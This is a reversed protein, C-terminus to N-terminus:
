SSIACTRQKLLTVLAEAGIADHRAKWIKVTRGNSLWPPACPSFGFTLASESTSHRVLSGNKSESESESESKSKSGSILRRILTHTPTLTLTPTPTLTLTRLLNVRRWGGAETAM